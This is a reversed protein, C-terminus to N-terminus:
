VPIPADETFDDNNRTLYVTARFLHGNKPAAPLNDELQDKEYYFRYKAAVKAIELIMEDYGDPTRMEAGEGRFV